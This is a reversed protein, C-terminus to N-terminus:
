RRDLGLLREYLGRLSEAVRVREAWRAEPDARWIENQERATWLAKAFSDALDDVSGADEYTLCPQQGSAHCGSPLLAVTGLDACAEPWVSHSGFLGPVVSVDLGFLHDWLQSESFPRHVRLAGGASRVLRDVERVTARDYTSSGADLVTEHVHVSLRVNDMARVARVLGDVLRVPDGPMALTALHTGVRLETHRAPRPQRMRVFDVVHPHPLVVPEVDWRLRMEDAASATLTVVADARPVLEGLQDAYRGDAAGSPDSLHYGTVVLPTGSSRVTEAAAAVEEAPQGPRLGHVHVVDVSELNAGLWAPDFSARRPASGPMGVTTRHVADVGEPHGLHRAYLGRGPLAAVRITPRGEWAPSARRRRRSPSVAYREETITSPAARRSTIVADRAFM